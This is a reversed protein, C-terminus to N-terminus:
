RYSTTALNCADANRRAAGRARSATERTRVCITDAFLLIIVRTMNGIEKAIANDKEARRRAEKRM